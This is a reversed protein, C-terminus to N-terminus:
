GYKRIEKIAKEVFEKDLQKRQEDLKFAISLLNSLKRIGKNGKKETMLLGFKPPKNKSYFAKPNGIAQIESSTLLYLPKTSTKIIRALTLADILNISNPYEAELIKILEKKIEERLEILQNIISKGKELINKDNETLDMGKISSSLKDSLFSQLDIEIEEPYFLFLFSSLTQFILNISKTLDDYMDILRVIKDKNSFAKSISEKALKIYDEQKM